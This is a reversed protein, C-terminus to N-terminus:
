IEGWKITVNAKKSMFEFLVRSYSSRIKSNLHKRIPYALSVLISSGGMLARFQYMFSLRFLASIKDSWMRVSISKLSRM